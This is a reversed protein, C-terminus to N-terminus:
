LGDSENRTRNEQRIERVNIGADSAFFGEGGARCSIIHDRIEDISLDKKGKIELIKAEDYEGPPLTFVDTVYRNKLTNISTADRNGNDWQDISCVHTVKSDRTTKVIRTLAYWSREDPYFILRVVCLQGRRAKGLITM